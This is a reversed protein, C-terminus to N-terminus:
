NLEDRPSIQILHDNEVRTPSRDLDQDWVSRVDGNVKDSQIAVKSGLKSEIVEIAKVLQSDKQQIRDELTPELYLDPQTGLGEIWEGQPTQGRVVSYRFQLGSVPLDFVLPTGTGGGTPEGIFTALGYSKLAASFTDCASFCYPSILAVVPQSYNKKAHPVVKLDHWDAFVAGLTFPVFFTDPRASILFDSMRESRRYRIIEKQVLRALIRDGSLDGGGNKRLDIILGRTASLRDMVQDLLFDDQTGSFGDIRLYGISGPLISAKLNEIGTREIQESRVPKAAIEVNRLLSVTKSEGKPTVLSLVWTQTGQDVGLVDVLRKGSSYRRMRETSGSASLRVAETIADRIAVGNIAVIEDGVSVGPTGAEVKVIMVKEHDTAPAMVEVRIPATYIELGTTDERVMVNVHGDHFASAWQRVIRYYQSLSTSDTILQELSAALGDYDLQTEAKKLDWYCYIEKGVYVVYRFETRLKTCVDGCNSTPTVGATLTFESFRKVSVSPIRERSLFQSCAGLFLSMVLFSLTGCRTKMRPM